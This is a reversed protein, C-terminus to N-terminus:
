TSDKKNGSKQTGPYASYGESNTKPPAIHETYIIYIYTYLNNRISTINKVM